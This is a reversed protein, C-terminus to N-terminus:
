PSSVKSSSSGGGATLGPSAGWKCSRGNNAAVYRLGLPYVSVGYALIGAFAAAVCGVLYFVSNRKGVEDLEWTLM